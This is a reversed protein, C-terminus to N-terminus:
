RRPRRKRKGRKRKWRFGPLRPAATDRIFEQWKLLNAAAPHGQPLNGLVAGLLALAEQQQGLRWRYKVVHSVSNTTDAHADGLLERQIDLARLLHALAQEPEDLRGHNMGMNALSMATYPHREGLTERQIQLAEELCRLARRPDGQAGYLNSLNNLSTAVDPHRDGLLKRQLHLAKERYAIAQAPDGVRECVNAFEVLARITFADSSGTGGLLGQELFKLVQKHDDPNDYAHQNM